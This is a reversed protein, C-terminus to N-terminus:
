RGILEDLALMMLFGVFLLSTGWYTEPRKHAEVLLEETVLYLVAVLGFAFAATQYPAALRAIPRAISAGLPVALAIGLTSRFVRWRASNRDTASVSLGLFMFEIGLALALLRGQHAGANFGLGLVMGDVLADIASAGILGTSSRSQETWHRLLMVAAIGLAGGAVAAGALGHRATDPLLEGAAAYFIVGAAFHQIASIARESPPRLTTYLVGAGAAAVPICAYLWENM